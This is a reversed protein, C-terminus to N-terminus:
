ARFHREVGGEKGVRGDNGVCLGHRGLCAPTKTGFCFTKPCIWDEKDCLLVNQPLDLRRQRLAFRKSAFGIKKTAFCFTEPCIWDEKDCLLVNQPLDLRRRPLAFRKSAFGIKKAAFCFTKPCIWDEKDCLLVNQPLDLRKRRSSLVFACRPFASSRLPNERKRLQEGRGKSTEAGRAHNKSANQSFINGIVNPTLVFHTM